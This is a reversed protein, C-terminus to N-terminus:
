EQPPTPMYIYIYTYIYIHIYIHLLYIRVSSINSIINLRKKQNERLVRPVFKYKFVYIHANKQTRTNTNNIVSNCLPLIYSM